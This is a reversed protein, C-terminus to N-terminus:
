LSARKKRSLHAHFELDTQEFCRQMEGVLAKVEVADGNIAANDIEDCHTALLAAGVSLAAGKIAHTTDSFEAGFGAASVKELKAMLETVDQRFGDL